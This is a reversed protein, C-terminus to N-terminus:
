TAFSFALLDSVIRILNRLSPTSHVAWTSGVRKLLDM